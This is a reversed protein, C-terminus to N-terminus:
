DVSELIEVGWPALVISDGTGIERGGLLSVAPGGAHIGTQTWASYNLYYTIEKGFDNFGRRVAVTHKRLNEPTKATWDEEPTSDTSPCFAPPPTIGAEAVARDIVEDLIEVAPMTGMYIAFGKGFRHATIAAYKSWAPNDYRMLVEAPQYNEDTETSSNENKQFNDVSEVSKEVADAPRVGNEAPTLLEAFMSAKKEGTPFAFSQYSVGLCENIIHPQLEAYVKMNEDSFGTKFTTLLVGGQRVYENLARLTKEPVAYLAPVILLDYDTLHPDNKFIVDCEINKHFLRSYIPMLVDNYTLTGGAGDVADIKFLSLATLASNSVLVAARNKKKLNVLHSGIQKWTNGVQSAERYVDNEKLDHSLVGKWYTEFSNHISHWHWYEVMNAGSAIHSMAQLYLQGPYPTWWPYGQAETELVLYNDQKLSRIVDGGFAIEEGTLESQSPHYIDCGAITLVKATKNHECDPQVGYSYDRWGFDFNHTIFQDPRKYEEVVSAQWALYDRVLFRRYRDFEAALSWNITGRVDPFDEWANIRNSWYDLGYAANMKELDGDFKEKLYDIFGEQVNKGAVGYYKTENDIQFGIVNKRWATVEMLKRIVRGAYSLFIPNTIDMNQRTGYRSMGNKTEALIEPYKRAMWTPIAYTPTGVIVSIGYKEMTECVRIVHSFDFVGDQPECTGWTSEAIRVVNMGAKAMMQADKEVRDYPMYEDYYACGYMLNKM